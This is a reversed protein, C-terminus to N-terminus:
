RNELESIASVPLDYKNEKALDFFQNANYSKNAAQMYKGMWYLEIAELPKGSINSSYIKTAESLNDNKVLTWVLWAYTQPTARTKIETNAITLAMQPQSLLSTFIDILYRNYMNGYNTKSAENAFRLAYQKALATDGSQLHLQAQKYLILPEKSHKKVLEFLKNATITNKDHLQSISGLGVISHLHGADLTLCAKYNSYAKKIDGNHLYLDAANSLAALKLPKNEGAITAAALMNAIASDINNKYHWVKANRFLFNYDKNNKIKALETQAYLYNGLEFQIDFNTAATEYAGIGFQKAQLLFSDAARFKHQLLSTNVLNLKHAVEKNNFHLDLTKYISDALVLDYINGHQKFRVLVNQAYKALAVADYQGPMSRKQWFEIEAEIKNEKNAKLFQQEIKLVAKDSILNEKQKCAFATFALTLAIITNKM